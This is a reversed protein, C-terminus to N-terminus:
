RRILVNRLCKSMRIYNDQNIYFEINLSKIYFLNNDEDKKYPFIDIYMMPCFRYNFSNNISVLDNIHIDDIKYNTKVWEINNIKFNIKKNSDSIFELRYIDFVLDDKIIVANSNNNVFHNDIFRMKNEDIKYEISNSFLMSSIFFIIILRVISM